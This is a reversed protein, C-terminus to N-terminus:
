PIEVELVPSLARSVCPYFHDNATREGRTMILDRHEPIGAIVETRCQGCVGRECLRPVRLGVGDLAELASVGAAVDVALGRNAVCLTFREGAGFDPAAFHEIHVRQEPWGSRNALECFADILGAPGCIYAHTGVPQRRLADTITQLLDARGIAETFAAGALSALEDRHPARGASYGYIVEM